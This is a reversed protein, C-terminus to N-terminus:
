RDTIDIVIGLYHTAQGNETFFPKGRSMFCRITGDTGVVRWEVNLQKKQSSAQRIVEAVGIRDDPHITEMWADYSTDVSNPQLGYLQWLENSWINENTLLNWEWTGCHAAEQALHLRQGSKELAIKSAHLQQDLQHRHLAMKLTAALEREPVPKILYGYPEAIIAEQLLPDQSYGTLFVIPVATIRNLAEATAIGNLAGALEIDMLVLDVQRQAATMFAVADEGKAFVGAVTYKLRTMVAQLDMALIADDEVILISGNSM